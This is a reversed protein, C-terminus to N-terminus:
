KELVEEQVLSLDEEWSAKHVVKKHSNSASILLDNDRRHKTKENSKVEISVESKDEGAPPTVVSSDPNHGFSLEEVREVIAIVEPQEERTPEFTPLKLSLSAFLVASEKKGYM